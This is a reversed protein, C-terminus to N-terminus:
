MGGKFIMDIRYVFNQVFYVTGIFRYQHDEIFDSVSIGAKWRATTASLPPGLSARITRRTESDAARVLASTMAM